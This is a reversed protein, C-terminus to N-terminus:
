ISGRGYTQCATLHEWVEGDWRAEGSLTLAVGTDGLVLSVDGRCRSLEALRRTAEGVDYFPATLNLNMAETTPIM